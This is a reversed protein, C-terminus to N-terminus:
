ASGVLRTLRRDELQYDAEPAYLAGSSSLRSSFLTFRNVPFPDHHFLNTIFMFDKVKAQSAGKLRALTVHPSFKRNDPELGLCTLAREIKDHLHLLPPTKEVGVFLTHLQRGKSFAGVGGLTLDFSPARLASLAAHIDQAVDEPADGIFRLTVHYSQPEMWRAGPVGGCLQALRGRVEEPLDIAVFLRIM